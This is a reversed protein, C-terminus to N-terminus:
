SPINSLYALPPKLSRQVELIKIAPGQYDAELPPIPTILPYILVLKLSTLKHYKALGLSHSLLAFGVLAM